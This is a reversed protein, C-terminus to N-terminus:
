LWRSTLRSRILSSPDCGLSSICNAFARTCNTLMEWGTQPYQGVFYAVRHRLRPARLFSCTVVQESAFMSTAHSSGQACRLPRPLAPRRGSLSRRRQCRSSASCSAPSPNGAGLNTGKRIRLHQDPWCFAGQAAHEQRQMSTRIGEFCTNVPLESPPVGTPAPAGHMVCQVTLYGRSLLM